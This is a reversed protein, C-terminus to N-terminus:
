RRGRSPGLWVGWMDVGGNHEELRLQIPFRREHRSLRFAARREARISRRIRTSALSSVFVRLMRSRPM